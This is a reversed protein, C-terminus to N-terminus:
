VQSELRIKNQQLANLAWSRSNVKKSRRFAKQYNDFTKRKVKKKEGIDKTKRKLMEYNKEKWWHKKQKEEDLKKDFIDILQILRDIVPSQEDVIKSYRNILYGQFFIYSILSIFTVVLLRRKM